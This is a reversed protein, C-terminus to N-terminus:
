EQRGVYQGSENFGLNELIDEALSMAGVNDSEFLRRLLVPLSEVSVTCYLKGNQWKFSDGHDPVYCAELHSDIGVNVAKEVLRGEGQSLEMTYPKGDMAQRVAAYTVVCLSLNRFSSM